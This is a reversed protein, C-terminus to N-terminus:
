IQRPNLLKKHAAEAADEDEGHHKKLDIGINLCVNGGAETMSTSDAMIRFLFKIELMDVNRIIIKNIKLLIFLLFSSVLM